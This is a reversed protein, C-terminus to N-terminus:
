GRVNQGEFLDEQIRTGQNNSIFDGIFRIWEERKKM